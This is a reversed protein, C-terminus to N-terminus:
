GRSAGGWGGGRGAAEVSQLQASVPQPSPSLLVRVAAAIPVGDKACM